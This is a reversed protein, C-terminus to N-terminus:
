TSKSKVFAVGLGRPGVHAGFIPGVEVTLVRGEVCHALTERLHTLVSVEVRSHLIALNELPSADLVAEAMRQVARRYTRVRGMLCADGSDFTLMPKIQLLEAVFAQAWSVRGGARLHDLSDLVGLVQTRSRMDDLLAVMERLTAGRQAAEAAAIVLWGLGMSVQRSDFIHIEHGPFDNAAMRAHQSIASLNSSLFIGMIAKAGAALLRRYAESFIEPSPAATKFLTSSQLQQYFWARDLTEDVAYYRNELLLYIPIVTIDLFKVIEWPIDAVSDTVVAIPAVTETSILAM